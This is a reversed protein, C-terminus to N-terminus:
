GQHTAMVFEAVFTLVFISMFFESRTGRFSVISVQACVVTTRSEVAIAMVNAIGQMVKSQPIAASDEVGVGAGAPM